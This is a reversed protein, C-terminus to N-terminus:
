SYLLFDKRRKQGEGKRRLSECIRIGWGVVGSGTLQTRSVGMLRGRIGGVGRWIGGSGREGDGRIDARSRRSISIEIEDVRSGPAM